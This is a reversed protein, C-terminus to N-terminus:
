KKLFKEKGLHWVEIGFEKLKHILSNDTEHIMKLFKPMSYVDGNIMTSTFNLHMPFGTVQSIPWLVVQNLVFETGRLPLLFFNGSHFLIRGVKNDGIMTYGAHCAMGALACSTIPYLPFARVVKLGTVGAVRAKITVFNTYVCTGVSEVYQGFIFVKGQLGTPRVVIDKRQVFNAVDDAFNNCSVKDTVDLYNYKDVIQCYMKVMKDADIIYKDTGPIKHLDHLMEYYIGCFEKSKMCMSSNSYLLISDLEICQNALEAVEMPISLSAKFVRYLTRDHEINDIKKTKKTM